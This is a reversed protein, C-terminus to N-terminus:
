KYVDGRKVIRTEVMNRRTRNIVAANIEILLDTHIAREEKTYLINDLALISHTSEVAHRNLLYLEKDTFKDFRNEM